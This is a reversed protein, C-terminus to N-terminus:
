NVPRAESMVKLEQLIDNTQLGRAIVTAAEKPIRNARIDLSLLTRNQGLAKGIAAGGELGLGNM